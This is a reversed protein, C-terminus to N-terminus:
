FVCLFILFEFRFHVINNTCPCFKAKEANPKCPITTFHEAAMKKGLTSEVPGLSVFVAMLHSGRMLFGDRDKILGKLEIILM